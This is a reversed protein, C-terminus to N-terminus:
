GAGGCPRFGASLLANTAAAAQLRERMAADARPVRLWVQAPGRMEREWAGAPVGASELQAEAAAADVLGFPGVELCARAAAAARQAAEAVESAPGPPLVKVSDPNVQAALRAPEREASAPSVFMPELWGHSWAYVAANALLLLLLLTRM